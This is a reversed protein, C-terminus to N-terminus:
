SWELELITSTGTNLHSKPALMVAVLGKNSKYQVYYYLTYSQVFKVEKASIENSWAYDTNHPKRM